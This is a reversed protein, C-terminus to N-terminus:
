WRVTRAREAGTPVMRVGEPRGCMRATRLSFLEHLLRTSRETQYCGDECVEDARFGHVCKAM